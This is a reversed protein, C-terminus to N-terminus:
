KLIGPRPEARGLSLGGAEAERPFALGWSPMIIKEKMPNRAIGANAQKSSLFM